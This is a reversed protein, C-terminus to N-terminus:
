STPVILFKGGTAAKAYTRLEALSLAQALSVHKTYKSAFTTTLERFIRGELRKVTDAGLKALLPFVLWGGIGWAMGYTRVLETPRPDLGGYIYVQKHTTTGYRQYGKVHRSAAAEMAGLIQSALKGGGIADFALTANTAALQETLDPVFTPSTSDVVHVAGLSRLIEAQEPKRVINVLGIGDALCVRNLMQGLNSAAATHVLAAHGEHKMTEVMALATLPNVFVSAADVIATGHPLARVAGVKLVRYQAYMGGGGLAAVRQGVLAQADPSSGAAVVTGAGENGPCMSQDVRAALAKLVGPTVRATIVPRETTGTATATELDAGALVVGLDSPNLPAAEVRVLVQDAQLTPVPVEVLSLELEGSARLLSRLELSTTPTIMARVTAPVHSGVRRELMTVLAYDQMVDREEREAAPVHIFVGDQEVM